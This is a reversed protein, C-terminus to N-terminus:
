RSSRGARRRASPSTRRPRPETPHLRSWRETSARGRPTVQLPRAGCTPPSTTSPRSSRQAELAALMAPVAPSSRPGTGRATRPAERFRYLGRVIGEEAGEPMAPMTYNENYLTLYYFGDEPEDGYM